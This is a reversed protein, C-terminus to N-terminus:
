VGSGVPRSNQNSGGGTIAPSAMGMNNYTQDGFDGGGIGGAGNNVGTTINQAPQQAQDALTVNLAAGIRSHLEQIMRTRVWRVISRYGPPIAALAPQSQVVQSRIQSYWQTFNGVFPSYLAMIESLTLNAINPDFTNLIAATQNQNTLDGLQGLEVVLASLFDYYRLLWNKFGVLNTIGMDQMWQQWPINLTLWVQYQGGWGYEDVVKYTNNCTSNIQAQLQTYNWLPNTFGMVKNLSSYQQGGLFKDNLVIMESGGCDTFLYGYGPEYIDCCFYSGDLPKAVYRVINQINLAIIFENNRVSCEYIPQQVIRVQANAPLGNTDFCMAHLLNFESYFNYHCNPGVLLPSGAAAMNAPNQDQIPPLPETANTTTNSDQAYVYISLQLLAIYAARSIHKM